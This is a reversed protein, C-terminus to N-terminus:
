AATQMYQMNETIVYILNHFYAFCWSKKTLFIRSSDLFSIQRPESLCVQGIISKGEGGKNGSEKWGSMGPDLSSLTAQKPMQIHKHKSSQSLKTQKRPKRFMGQGSALEKKYCLPSYHTTLMTIHDHSNSYKKKKGWKERILIHTPVRPDFQRRYNIWM